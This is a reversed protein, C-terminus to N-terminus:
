YIIDIDKLAQRARDSAWEKSKVEGTIIEGEKIKGIGGEHAMPGLKYLPCRVLISM